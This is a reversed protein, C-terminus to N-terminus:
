NIDATEFVKFGDDFQIDPNEEHIKKAARRIREKGIECINRYGAQAATGNGKCAEPCQVMIFKRHGKDEANLQMVAHATTASGSFFDLVIDNKGVKFNILYKILSVPKPYDFVHVGDFLRELEDGAQETTCVGVSGDILNPPVEPDYDDRDYSPSFSQTRISIVTGKEIEKELKSQGWKFKGELHVKSIFIGDKVETDELLNIEYRQTGYRGAKYIGDDLGTRVVGSPFILKHFSNTQNMLGNSSKSTKRIGRYKTNSKQYEYCIIYEVNKKIKRSLNPPTASKYWNWQGVFNKEGFIENCINLLNEIENDDISIFIVGDVSLLERAIKLRPYMINLWNSHNRLTDKINKEIENGCKESFEKETMSFNDNYTYTNGTNYPPDIYIMKIRGSYNKRLLKLVELNDGEIYLNETIDGNVSDYPKYKLTRHLIDTKAENEAEKKGIWNFGYKEYVTEGMMEKLTDFDIKGDRVTEPFHQQVLSLFLEKNKNKM